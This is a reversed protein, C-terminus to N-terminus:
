AAPGGVAPGDAQAGQQALVDIQYNLAARLDSVLANYGVLRESSWNVGVRIQEEELQILWSQFEQLSFESIEYRLYKPHFSQIKSLRSRSSWFPVVEGEKTPYVLLDGENTFTFAMRKKAVEANFKAYQAAAISM